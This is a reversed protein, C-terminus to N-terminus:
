LRHVPATAHFVPAGRCRWGATHPEIHAVLLASMLTMGNQRGAMRDHSALRLNPTLQNFRQGRHEVGVCSQLFTTHAAGM